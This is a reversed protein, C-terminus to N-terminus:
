THQVGSNQVRCRRKASRMGWVEAGNAENRKEASRMGWSDTGNAENRM